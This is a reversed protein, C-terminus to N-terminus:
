AKANFFAFEEDGARVSLGAKVEVWQQPQIRKGGVYTGFRSNQDQVFLRGGKGAFFVCHRRSIGPAEQPNVPYGITNTGEGRGLTIYSGEPVFFHRGAFQGHLCRIEVGATSSSQRSVGFLAAHMEDISRFRKTDDLNLGYMIAEVVRPPASPNFASLPVLSDKGSSKLSASREYVKSPLTGRSLLYYLTACLSFTDTWFGQNGNTLFLEPPAYVDKLFATFHGADERRVSGFDILKTDGNSCIFINDPSIDRHILGHGHLIALGQMVSEVPKELQQWTMVGKNQIFVHQLDAGELFEMAYYTTNNTEFYDYINVIAPERRLSSIVRAEDVFRKKAHQFFPQLEPSVVVSQGDPSREMRSPYLEKLAVRRRGRYDWALYTIGFGGHGLVRGIQYRGNLQCGFPLADPSREADTAPRGCRTCRGKVVFGDMCHLCLVKRPFLPANNM